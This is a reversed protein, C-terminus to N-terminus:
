PVEKEGNAARWDKLCEETAGPGIAFDVAATVEIIADRWRSDVVLRSGGMFDACILEICRGEPVGRLGANALQTRVEGIALEIGQRQDATLIISKPGEDQTSCVAEGGGIPTMLGKDVWWEQLVLRGETGNRYVESDDHLVTKPIWYRTDDVVVLIAQLTEAETTVELFEVM